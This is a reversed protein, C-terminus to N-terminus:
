LKSSLSNRALFRSTLLLILGCGIDILLLSFCAVAVGNWGENEKMVLSLNSNNLFTRPDFVLTAYKTEKGKILHNLLSSLYYLLPFASLSILHFPKVTGKEGFLLWDLFYLIPFLILPLFIAAFGLGDEFYPIDSLFTYLPHGVMLGLELSLFLFTIAPYVGAAMRRVGDKLSICNVVIEILVLVSSLLTLVSEYRWLSAAGADLVLVALSAIGSALLLVRYSLSLIQNRIVM